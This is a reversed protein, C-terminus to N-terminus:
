SGSNDAAQASVALSNRAKAPVPNLAVTPDQTDTFTAAVARSGDVTVVCTMGSSSDCGTWAASYGVASATLPVSSPDPYPDCSDELTDSYCTTTRKSSIVCTAGCNIGGGSITGVSPASVTLTDTISPHTIRTCDPYCPPIAEAPRALALGVAATAVVVWLAAVARSPKVSM